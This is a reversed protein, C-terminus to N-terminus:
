ALARPSIARRARSFGAYILTVQVYLNTTINRPVTARLITTPATARKKTLSLVSGGREDFSDLVEGIYVNRGLEGCLQAPRFARGTGLAAALFVGVEGGPSQPLALRALLLVRDLDARDEFIGGDPEVLPERRYPKDGVALVSDRRMLHVTIEADGLLGGPEHKV